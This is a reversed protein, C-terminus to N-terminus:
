SSPELEPDRMFFLRSTLWPQLWKLALSPSFSRSGLHNTWGHSQQCVESGWGTPTVAWCPLQRGGSCTICFFLFFLVSAVNDKLFRIKSTVDDNRGFEKPWVSWDQCLILPVKCPHSYWCTPIKPPWRKCAEMKTSEM